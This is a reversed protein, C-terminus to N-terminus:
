KVTLMGKMNSHYTCYYPYSGPESPATFTASAGGGGLEVDFAKDQEATVTHPAADMNTVVVVAGPAVTIPEGYKFDKITITAAANSAGASSTAEGPPATGTGPSGGGPACGGLLLAAILLLAARVRVEKM